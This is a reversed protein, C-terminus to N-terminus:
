RPAWQFPSTRLSYATPKSMADPVIIIDAPGGTVSRVIVGAGIVGVVLGGIVFGIVAVTLLGGTSKASAL